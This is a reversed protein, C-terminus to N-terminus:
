GVTRELVPMGLPDAADFVSYIGTAGATLLIGCQIAHEPNVANVTVSDIDDDTMVTVNFTFM